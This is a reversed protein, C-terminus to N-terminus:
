RGEYFRLRNKLFRNEAQLNEMLALLHRIADLGELNIHLDYHLRVLKEVAELDDPSLFTEEEETRLEILGQEHLIRLFSVDIRHHGCFENASIRERLIM